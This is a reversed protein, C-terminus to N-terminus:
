QPVTEDLRAREAESLVPTNLAKAKAQLRTRRASLETEIEEAQDLPTTQTTFEDGLPILEPYDATAVWEPVAQELEPVQICGALATLFCASIHRLWRAM